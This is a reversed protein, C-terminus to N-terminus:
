SILKPEGIKSYLEKSKEPEKLSKTKTEDIQKPISHAAKSETAPPKVQSSTSISSKHLSSYKQLEQKLEQKKAQLNSIEKPDKEVQLQQNIEALRQSLITSIQQYMKADPTTSTHM